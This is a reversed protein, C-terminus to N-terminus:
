HPRMGAAIRRRATDRTLQSLVLLRAIQMWAIVVIIFESLLFALALGLPHAHPMNLRLLAIAGVIVLAVLEILIYSVFVALPRRKVFRTSRWWALVASRRKPDLAFQARAAEISVHALLLLIGAVVLGIHRQFETTSALIASEDWHDIMKSIAHIIAFAIGIPVVSWVTVRLMRGYLAFGGRILESFGLTRNAQATAIVTGNLFPALFLVLLMAMVGVSGVITYDPYPAAILAGAVDAFAAMNFTEAWATSYVSHDLMQGLLTSFPLAVFLTPILTLVVWLLFIRWQRMAGVTTRFLGPESLDFSTSM